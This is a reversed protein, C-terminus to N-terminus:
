GLPDWEGDMDSSVANQQIGGCTPQANVLGFNGQEMVRLSEIGGDCQSMSRWGGGNETNDNSVMTRRDSCTIRVNILGYGSQEIFEIATAFSNGECVMENNWHGNQNSTM